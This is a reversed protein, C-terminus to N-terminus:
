RTARAPGQRSTGRSRPTAARSRRNRPRCAPRAHLFALGRHQRATRWGSGRDAGSGARHLPRPVRAFPREGIFCIGTSDPKDICAAARRPARARAGRGKDARRASVATAAPLRARDVHLFYTQDKARDLPQFLGVATPQRGRLRAYHGTAFCDAALGRRMAWVRRRVQDRPQVARGSQSHPRRPVRGPLVRVGAAPVRRAFSVRHLLHRTRRGRRACGPLGPGGHLLRRRSM